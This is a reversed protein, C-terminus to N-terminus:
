IETAHSAAMWIPRFALELVLHALVASIRPARIPHRDSCHRTIFFRLLPNRKTMSSIIKKGRSKPLHRVVRRQIVIRSASAARNGSMQELQQVLASIEIQEALLECAKIRQYLKDASRNL